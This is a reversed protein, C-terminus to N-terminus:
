GDKEDEDDEDTPIENRELMYDNEVELAAQVSDYIKIEGIALCSGFKPEIKHVIVEYSDKNRKAAVSDRVAIRAPTSEGTHDIEVRLEIRNFWPNEEEEVEMIDM